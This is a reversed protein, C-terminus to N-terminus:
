RGSHVSYFGIRWAVCFLLGADLISFVRQMADMGFAPILLVVLQDSEFLFMPMEHDWLFCGLPKWVRVFKFWEGIKAAVKTLLVFERELFFGLMKAEQGLVANLSQFRNIKYPIRVCRIPIFSVVIENVKSLSVAMRIHWSLPVFIFLQSPPCGILSLAIFCLLLSIRKSFRERFSLNLEHFLNSELPTGFLFHPPVKVLIELFKALLITM